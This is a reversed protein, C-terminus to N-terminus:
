YIYLHYLKARFFLYLILIELRQEIIISGIFYVNLFIANSVTFNISQMLIHIFGRDTLNTLSSLWTFNSVFFQDIFLSCCNNEVYLPTYDNFFIPNNTLTTTINIFNLNPMYLNGKQFYLIPPIIVNRIYFNFINM